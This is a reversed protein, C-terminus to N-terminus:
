FPHNLDTEQYLKHKKEFVSGNGKKWGNMGLNNQTFIRKLAGIPFIILFFVVSLILTNMVIGLYHSFGFWVLAVPKFLVPLLLGVLLIIFSALYFTEIGQFVAFFMMVLTIIIVVDKIQEKSLKTQMM